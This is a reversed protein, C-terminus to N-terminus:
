LSEHQTNHRNQMIGGTRGTQDPLKQVFLRLNIKAHQTRESAVRQRLRISKVRRNNEAALHAGIITRSQRRQKRLQQPNAANDIRALRKQPNTEARLQERHSIAALNGAVGLMNDLNTKIREIRRHVAKIRNKGLHRLAKKLPVVLTKGQGVARHLQRRAISKGILRKTQALAGITKLKVRLRRNLLNTIPVRAVALLQCAGARLCDGRLPEILLPM